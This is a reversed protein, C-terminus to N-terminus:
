GDPRAELRDDGGGLGDDKVAREALDLADVRAEVLVEAVQRDLMPHEVWLECAPRQKVEPRVRREPRREEEKLVRRVLPARRFVDLDAKAWRSRTILRYIVASACQKQM